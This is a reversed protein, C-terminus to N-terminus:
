LMPSKKLRSGDSGALGLLHLDRRLSEAALLTQGARWTSPHTERRTLANSSPMWCQCYLVKKLSRFDYDPHRNQKSM